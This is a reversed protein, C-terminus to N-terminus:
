IKIRIKKLETLAQKEEKAKKLPDIGDDANRKRDLSAKKVRIVLDTLAKERDASTDVAYLKKNIVASAEDSRDEMAFRTMIDATSMNGKEYGEYIM